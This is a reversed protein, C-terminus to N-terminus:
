IDKYIPDSLQIVELKASKIYEIGERTKYNTWYVVRNIEWDVIWKACEICPAHTVYMTTHVDPGLPAYANMIANAEAHIAIMCTGDDWHECHEVNAGAGNYGSSVIKNDIVIVAGVQLRSCTARDAAAMAFKMWYSDWGPRNRRM